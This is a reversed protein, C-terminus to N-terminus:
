RFAVLSIYSGDANSGTQNPTVFTVSSATVTLVAATFVNGTVIIASFADPLPTTFNVTYNGVSNRTVNTVNGGAFPVNTGTLTGNFSCFARAAFIPASGSQTFAEPKIGSRIGGLKDIVVSDAGDVQIVSQTDTKSYIKTTM